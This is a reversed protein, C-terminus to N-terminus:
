SCWYFWFSYMKLKLLSQCLNCVNLCLYSITWVVDYTEVDYLLDLNGKTMTNSAWEDFMHM